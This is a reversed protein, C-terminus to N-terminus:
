GMKYWQDREIVGSFQPFGSNKELTKLPHLFLGTAGFPNFMLSLHYM